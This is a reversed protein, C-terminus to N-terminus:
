ASVKEPKTLAKLKKAVEAAAEGGSELYEAFKEIENKDGAPSLMTITQKNGCWSFKYDAPDFEILKKNLALKTLARYEIARGAMLDTFYVPDTEALAEIQDRLIIEDLTDDMMLARAFELVKDGTLEEAARRAKSKISRDERGKTAAAMADIRTVIPQKNKDAFMGDKLKPHCEIFMATDFDDPKNELDLIVQGRLRGEVRVKKYKPIEVGRDGYEIKEIMAIKKARQTGQPAYPDIINFVAPDLTYLRPFLIPGDKKDPDPNINSIDFKYTVTKGFGKVKKELEERLKPSLDNFSGQQQLLM